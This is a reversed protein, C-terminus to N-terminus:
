YGVEKMASTGIHLKVNKNTQKNLTQTRQELNSSPLAMDAETLTEELMLSSHYLFLHGRMNRQCPMNKLAYDLREPRLSSRSM